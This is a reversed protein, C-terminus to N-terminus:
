RIHLLRLKYNALFFADIFTTFGPSSLPTVTEVRSLQLSDIDWPIWLSFPGILTGPDGSVHNVM